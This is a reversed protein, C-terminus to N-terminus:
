KDLAFKIPLTMRVMVPVDNQRGPNWGPL